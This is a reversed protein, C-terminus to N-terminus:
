TLSTINLSLTNLVPGPIVIEFGEYVALNIHMRSYDSVGGDLIWVTPTSRLAELTQTLLPLKQREVQIVYSPVASYPGDERLDTLTGFEDRIPTLYEQIGWSAGMQVAGIGQQTGLFLGGIACEAGTIEIRLQQGPLLIFEDFM